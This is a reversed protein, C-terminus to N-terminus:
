EITTNEMKVRSSSDKSDFKKELAVLGKPIKNSKIQIVDKGFLADKGDITEVYANLDIFQDEYREECALFKIIDRDDEFIQWNHINNPISPRPKIEVQAIDECPIDNNKVVLNAMFNALINESRDIWTISFADFVEISDWVENKYRKLTHNKTIFKDRIQSVVLEYDGYVLLIKIGHKGAMKLGLLLAEYEVTNNTCEFALLFSYKFSKGNPSIFVVGAGNGNKSCSGDFFMKWIFDSNEKACIKIPSNKEILNKHIRVQFNEMDTHFFHTVQSPDIDEIIYTSRPERDIRIVRDNVPITAYSLDLQINGGVLNSWQRSLLMGYSPPVEVITIYIKYSKELCSLFRFEVNKMIGIVPASRNDMAYSKGYTTDVNM